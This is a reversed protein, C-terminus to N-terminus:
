TESIGTLEAVRAILERPMTIEGRSWDFTPDLLSGLETRGGAPDEASPRTAGVQRGIQDLALLLQHAEDSVQVNRLALLRLWWSRFVWAKVPRPTDSV